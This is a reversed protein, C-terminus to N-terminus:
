GVTIDRKLDIPMGLTKSIVGLLKVMAKRIRNGERKIYAISMVEDPRNGYCMKVEGDPNAIAFQWLRNFDHLSLRVRPELNNVLDAYEKDDTDIINEVDPQTLLLHINDYPAQLDMTPDALIRKYACILLFEAPTLGNGM